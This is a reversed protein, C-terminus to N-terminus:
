AALTARTGSTIQRSVMEARRKTWRQYAEMPRLAAWVEEERPNGDLVVSKLEPMGDFLAADIAVLGLAASNAASPSSVATSQCGVTLTRISPLGVSADGLSLTHIANGSLDLSLLKAFPLTWPPNSSSSVGGTSTSSPVGRLFCAPWRVTAGRWALSPQRSAAPPTATAAPAVGSSSFQGFPWADIRNYSLDLTVLAMPAASPPVVWVLADMVAADIGTAGLGTTFRASGDGSCRLAIANHSLDLHKLEPFSALLLIPLSAIRNHSLTLKELPYRHFPRGGMQVEEVLGDKPAAAAASTLSAVHAEVLPVFDMGKGTTPPLLGQSASMAMAAIDVIANHSLDLTKLTTLVCPPPSIMREPISCFLALPIAGKLKGPSCAISKLRLDGGAPVRPPAAGAPPRAPGGKSPATATTTTGVASKAQTEDKRNLADVLFNWDDFDIGGINLMGTSKALKFRETAQGNGMINSKDIAIASVPVLVTAGEKERYFPRSLPPPPFSWPRFHHHRTM